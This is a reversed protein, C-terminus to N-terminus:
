EELTIAEVPCGDEADRACDERDQPITEVKVQSTEPGMEFIDPCTEVCNGCAICLETDITAKM